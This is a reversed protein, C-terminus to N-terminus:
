SPKRSEQGLAVNSFSKAATQLMQQLLLGATIRSKQPCKEFEKKSSLKRRVNRFGRQLKKRSALMDGAERPIPSSDGQHCHRGNSSRLLFFIRARPTKTDYQNRLSLRKGCALSAM